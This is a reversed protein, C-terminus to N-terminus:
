THLRISLLGNILMHDLIQLRSKVLFVFALGVRRICIRQALLFHLANKHTRDSLALAITHHLCVASRISLYFLREICTRFHRHERIMALHIRHHRRHVRDTIVLLEEATAKHTHVRLVTSYFGVNTSKVEYM